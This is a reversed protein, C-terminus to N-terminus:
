PITYGLQKEGEATGLGDVSYYYLTHAGSSEGAPQTNAVGNTADAATYLRWSGGDFRYYTAAIGAANDSATLKWRNVGTVKAATTTPAVTDIYVTDEHTASSNGAYDVAYYRIIFLNGPNAMPGVSVTGGGFGIRAKDELSSVTSTTGWETTSSSSDVSFWYPPTAYYDWWRDFSKYYVRVSSLGSCPGPSSPDRVYLAASTAVVSNAGTRLGNLVITPPTLDTGTTVYNITRTIETNGAVDVSYCQLTHQGVRVTDLPNTIGNAMETAGYASFPAGDFSYYTSAVGSQSDVPSLRWTIPASSVQSARTIPSSTDTTGDKVTHCAPQCGRAHCENTDCTPGANMVAVTM